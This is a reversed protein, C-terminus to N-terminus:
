MQHEKMIMENNICLVEHCKATGNIREPKPLMDKKIEVDQDTYTFFKISPVAQQLKPLLDNICHYADDPNFRIVDKM